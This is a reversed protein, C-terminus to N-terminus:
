IEYYGGKKLKNSIFERIACVYPIEDLMGYIYWNRRHLLNGQM